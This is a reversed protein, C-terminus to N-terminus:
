AAPRQDTPRHDGHSGPPQPSVALRCRGSAKSGSLNFGFSMMIEAAGDRMTSQDAHHAKFKVPGLHLEKAFEEVMAMALDALLGAELPTLPRTEGPDGNGGMMLTVISLAMPTDFIVFASQGSEPLAVEVFHVPDEGLASLTITALADAETSVKSTWLELVDESMRVMEHLSQQFAASRGGNLWSGAVGFDHPRPESSDATATAADDVAADDGATDADVDHEEVDTADGASADSTHEPQTM